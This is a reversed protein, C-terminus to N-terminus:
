EKLFLCVFPFFGKSKRGPIGSKWSDHPFGKNMSTYKLLAGNALMEKGEPVVLVKERSDGLFMKYIEVPSSAVHYKNSIILM